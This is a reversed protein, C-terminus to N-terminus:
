IKDIVKHERVHLLQLMFFTSKRELETQDQLFSNFNITM